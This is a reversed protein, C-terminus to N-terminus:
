YPLTLEEEPIETVHVEEKEDYSSFNTEDEESGIPPLNMQM